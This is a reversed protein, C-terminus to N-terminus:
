WRGGPGFGPGWKETVMIFLALAVGVGLGVLGWTLPDRGKVFASFATVLPTQVILWAAVYRWRM